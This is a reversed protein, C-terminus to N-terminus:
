GTPLANLSILLLSTSSPVPRFSFVSLTQPVLSSFSACSSSRQGSVIVLHTILLARLIPFRSHIPSSFLTTSLTPIIVLKQDKVETFFAEFQSWTPISTVWDEFQPIEQQSRLVM